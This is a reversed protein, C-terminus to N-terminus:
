ILLVDDPLFRIQSTELYIPRLSLPLGETITHGFQDAIEKQEAARADDGERHAIQARLMAIRWLWPLQNSASAIAHAEDLASKAADRNGVGLLARAQAIRLIMIFLPLKRERAEVLFSEVLQLADAWQSTIEAEYVAARGPGDLINWVRAFAGINNHQQSREQWQRGEQLRHRAFETAALQIATAHALFQVHCQCVEYGSTLLEVAKDMAGIARYLRGQELHAYARIMVLKYEQSLRLCEEYNQLANGWKGCQADIMGSILKALALNWHNYVKASIEAAEDAYFRAAVFDLQHYADWAQQNFNRALFPLNDFRRFLARAEDAYLQGEAQHGSLRLSGALTNLLFSLTTDNNHQRALAIARKGYRKVDADHGYYFADLMQCWLLGAEVDDDGLQQVLRMGRSLLPLARERSHVHNPEVYCSALHVVAIAEMHQDGRRQALLDFEEYVRIAQDHQEALDLMRGRQTYIHILPEAPLNLRGAIQQARGYLQEARYYAHFQAVYEGARIYYRVAQDLSGALEYHFAIQGSDLNGASNHQAAMADAVRRHLIRRRVAGIRQYVLTRVSDHTFMFTTEAEGGQAEQILRRNWLEEIANLIEGEDKSAVLALLAVSFESGVVAALQALEKADEALRELRAEIAAQIKSPLTPFRGQFQDDGSVSVREIGARVMEVIFLPNGQTETYLTSAATETVAEGAVREALQKTQVSSLPTLALEVLLGRRRWEVLASQLWPHELADEDRLTAILLLPPDLAQQFLYLLWQMTDRDAWHLDDLFLLAPQRTGLIAQVLAQRLRQHQWGDTIPGPAPLDSREIQIEPLLRSLEVLWVDAVSQRHDAFSPARLWALIPAYAFDSGTAFSNARAVPFGQSQAVALLEEALRTKGIGAEGTLLVISIQGRLTKQWSQYLTAWEGERGVLTLQETREYTAINHPSPHALALNSRKTAQTALAVTESQPEVGLEDRLVKVCQEFVRQANTSDGDALHLRILRRYAAEDLPDAEVMRTAYRVASRLSRQQELLDILDALATVYSRHLRARQPLIWDDYCSPLLEGAYYGVARELHFRREDATASAALTVSNDVEHVDCWYPLRPKWQLSTSDVELYYDIEPLLQRIQSLLNRLSNRAQPESADPWLQFAVHYRPQPASAHLLLYALLAQQRTSKIPLVIGSQSLRFAGLLQIEIM